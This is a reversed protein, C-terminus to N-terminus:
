ALLSPSDLTWPSTQRTAGKRFRGIGDWVLARSHMCPRSRIESTETRGTGRAQCIRNELLRRLVEKAPMEPIPVVGRHHQAQECSAWPRGGWFGGRVCKHARRSAMQWPIHPSFSQCLASPSPLYRPSHSHDAGMRSESAEGKEGEERIAMAHCLKYYM